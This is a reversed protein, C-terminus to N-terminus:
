SLQKWPTRLLVCLRCWRLQLIPSARVVGSVVWIKMNSRSSLSVRMVRSSAPFLNEEHPPGIVGYNGHKFQSAVNRLAEMALKYEKIDLGSLHESISAAVYNAERFKRSTDWVNTSEQLVRSVSFSEGSLEPPKIETCSSALLWRPHLLRTPIINKCGIAKWVFCVRPYPLLRSGKFLCSCSWDRKTVSYESRPEDLADQEDSDYQVLFM